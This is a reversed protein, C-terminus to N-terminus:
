TTKYHNIYKIFDFIKGSDNSKFLAERILDGDLYLEFVIIPGYKEDVRFSKKTEINAFKYSNRRGSGVFVEDKSYSNAGYSKNSKYNPVDVKHWISYSKM